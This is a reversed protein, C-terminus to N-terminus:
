LQIGAEAGKPTLTMLFNGNPHMSVLEVMDKSILYDFRENQVKMYVNENVWEIFKDSTSYGMITDSKSGMQALIMALEIENVMNIGRRVQEVTIFDPCTKGTDKCHQIFSNNISVVDEAMEQRESDSLM